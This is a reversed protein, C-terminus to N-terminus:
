CGGRCGREGPVRQASLLERTRRVAAEREPGNVALARVVPDDPGRRSRVEALRDEFGVRGGDPTTTMDCYWLADRAATREDAFEALETALGVLDAVAAAGAHHAVLACVREPAGHEALFRAGDLQHFGVVNLASVYGIDHLWASAVLIEAEEHPLARAVEEARGAVGQTHAWRRPLEAALVDRATHRAWTSLAAGSTARPPVARLEARVAREVLIPVFTHVRAQAFRALAREVWTHVVGAPVRDQERVLRAELDRVQQDVHPELSRGATAVQAM